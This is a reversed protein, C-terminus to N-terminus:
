GSGEIWRPSARAGATDRAELLAGYILNAMGAFAGRDKCLALYHREAECLSWAGQPTHPDAEPADTCGVSGIRTARGVKRPALPARQWRDEM